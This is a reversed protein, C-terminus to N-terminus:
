FTAEQGVHSLHFVPQEVKISQDADDIYLGESLCTLFHKKKALPQCGIARTAINVHPPTIKM